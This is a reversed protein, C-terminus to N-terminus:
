ENDGDSTTPAVSPTVPQKPKTNGIEGGVGLFEWCVVKVIQLKSPSEDTWGLEVTATRLRKERNMGRWNLVSLIKGAESDVLVPVKVYDKPYAFDELRYTRYNPDDRLAHSLAENVVVRFVQTKGPRPYDVFARFTRFKGQIFVSADLKLGDDTKKFFANIGIPKSLNHEDIKHAMEILTSKEHGMVQDLSGIPAFYGRMDIQAPQRYKMLFIGREHDYKSGMVHGFAEMPIDSDDTGEPYFIKLEEMVGENPIVYKMREEPSTAKMFDQLVKSAEQKWGTTMWAQQSMAENEGPVDQSTDAATQKDQKWKQALWFTVGGAVLLIIIAAVVAALNGKSRRQNGDGITPQPTVLDEKQLPRDPKNQNAELRVPKDVQNGKPESSGAAPANQDPSTVEKGCHPCPATTPPLGAPIFIAKQCHKCPFSAQSLKSSGSM